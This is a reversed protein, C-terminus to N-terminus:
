KKVLLELGVRSLLVDCCGIAEDDDDDDDMAGNEVLVDDDDDDDDNGGGRRLISMALRPSIAMRMMLDARSCPMLVTAM